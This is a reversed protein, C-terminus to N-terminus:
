VLEKDKLDPWVLRLIQIMSKRDVEKKPTM